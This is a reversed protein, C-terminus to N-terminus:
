GRVTCETQKGEAPEQSHFEWGPGLCALIHELQLGHVDPFTDQLHHQQPMQEGLRGARPPAVM